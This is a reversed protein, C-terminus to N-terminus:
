HQRQQQRQQQQEQQEQARRHKPQQWGEDEQQEVLKNVTCDDGIRIAPCGLKKFDLYSKGKELVIRAGTGILRQASFLTDALEDGGWADFVIDIPM